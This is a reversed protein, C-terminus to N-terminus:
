ILIYGYVQKIGSDTAQVELPSGEIEKGFISISIYIPEFDKCNFRLQLIERRETGEQIEFKIPSDDTAKRCM